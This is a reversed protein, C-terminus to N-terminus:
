ALYPSGTGSGVLLFCPAWFLGPRPPAPLPLRARLPRALREDRGGASSPGGASGGRGALLRQPAGSSSEARGLNPPLAKRAPAKYAERNSGTEEKVTGALMTPIKAGRGTGRLRGGDAAKRPGWGELGPAPGRWTRAEAAGQGGRQAGRELAERGAPGGRGQPEARARLGQEPRLPVGRKEGSPQEPERIVWHQGVRLAADAGLGHLLRGPDDNLLVVRAQAVIEVGVLAHALLDGNNGALLETVLNCPSNVPRTSSPSGRSLTRRAGVRSRAPHGAAPTPVLTVSAAPEGAPRGERVPSALCFGRSIRSRM